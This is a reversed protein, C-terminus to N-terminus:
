HGLEALKMELDGGMTAMKQAAKRHADILLAITKAEEVTITDPTDVQSAIIAYDMMAEGSAAFEGMDHYVEKLDELVPLNRDFFDDAEAGGTALAEDVKDLVNDIAPVVERAATIFPLVQKAVSVVVSVIGAAKTLVSGIIGFISM